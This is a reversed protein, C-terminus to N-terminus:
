SRTSSHEPRATNNASEERAVDGTLVLLIAAAEGIRSNIAAAIASIRSFVVDSPTSIHIDSIHAILIKM